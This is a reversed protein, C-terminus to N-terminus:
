PHRATRGPVRARRTRMAATLLIHMHALIAGVVEDPGARPYPVVLYQQARVKQMPM